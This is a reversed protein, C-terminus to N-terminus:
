SSPMSSIRDGKNMSIIANEPSLHWGIPSQPSVQWTRRFQHCKRIYMDIIKNGTAEKGWRCIIIVYIGCFPVSFIRLKAWYSDLRRFVTTGNLAMYVKLCIRLSSESPCQSSCHIYMCQLHLLGHPEIAVRQLWKVQIAVRKYLTMEPADWLPLLGRHFLSCPFSNNHTLAPAVPRTPWIEVSSRKRCLM